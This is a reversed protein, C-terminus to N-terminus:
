CTLVYGQDGIGELCTWLIFVQGKQSEPTHPYVTGSLCHGLVLFCPLEHDHNYIVTNFLPSKQTTKQKSTQKQMSRCGVYSGGGIPILQYFHHSSKVSYKTNRM